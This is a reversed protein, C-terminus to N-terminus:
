EMLAAIATNFSMHEIAESVKKIATHAVVLLDGELESNDGTNKAEIYRQTITWVRQLFRFTGATIEPNWPTTQDYPALFTIALRLSDAGYGQEIIDTPNLVNGRSKSM